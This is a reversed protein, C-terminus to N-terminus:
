SCFGSKVVQGFKPSWRVECMFYVFGDAIAPSSDGSGFQLQAKFKWKAEGTVIDLAHLCGDKALVFLTDGAVVPFSTINTGCHYEWLTHQPKPPPDIDVFGTRGFNYRYMTGLSNDTSERKKLVPLTTKSETVLKSSNSKEPIQATRSTSPSTIMPESKTKDAWVGCFSCWPRGNKELYVERKGCIPCPKDLYVKLNPTNTVVSDEEIKKGFLRRFFNM